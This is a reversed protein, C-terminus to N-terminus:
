PCTDSPPDGALRQQTWAIADAVAPSEPEVLPVHDLGPYTRYDVAYGAACRADVYEEQASPVVLSDAEGQGLLLPADIEGSPVNEVLRDHLAGRDPDGTWVPKDLLLTQLISVLTGRDALCRQSMEAVIPRAAPRVYERTTVDPYAAVYGAIVYSAFLDGGTVNALNDLLAPPNSAPALAVVGDIDLEPAYASALQGTWLAAAGGQSHGWVVTQDGLGAEELAHAARIADLVARGAAEGVLYLHPGQTGLGVYDTAVIAWGQALVQDQVFMAGAALGGPLVSPACGPSAGTTGHAWAVVPAGDPDREDPVIVLGSAVAPTDDDETTTYLIRWAQAGDPIEDSTFPESRLLVGPEAPVEDPEDYFADPASASGRVAASVAVLLGTVALAVTQAVVRGWGARGRAPERRDLARGRVSAVVLRVGVIAVRAGFVVAVVVTTVDPWALALGALVLSTVGGLLDAVRATGRGHWAAWLDAAADALLALGVILALNALTAGSWLALALGALLYAVGPVMAVWGDDSARRARLGEALRAAGVALLGVIVVLALITLSAFPRTVLTVGLLLLLAGGVGAGVRRM